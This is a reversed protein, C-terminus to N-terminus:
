RVKIGNILVESGLTQGSVVLFFESFMAKFRQWTVPPTRRGYLSPTIKNVFNPFVDGLYNIQIPIAYEYEGAGRCSATVSIRNKTNKDGGFEFDVFIEYVEKIKNMKKHKNEM